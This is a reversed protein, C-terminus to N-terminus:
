GGGEKEEANNRKKALELLNAVNTSINSSVNKMKIKEEHFRALKNLIDMKLKSNNDQNQLINKLNPLLVNM